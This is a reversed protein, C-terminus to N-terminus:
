AASALNQGIVLVLDANTRDYSPIPASAPPPTTGVIASDPLGVTKALAQAEALFGSHVIYIASTADTSTTNDPPLTQYGPDAHLKASWQSSLSGAQLGNLVSLRVSSPAVPPTTTTTTTSSAPTIPSTTTHHRGAPAATKKPSGGLQTLLGITVAVAVVIILAARFTRTGESTPGDARRRGPAPRSM